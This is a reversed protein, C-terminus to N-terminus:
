RGTARLSPLEAHTLVGYVSGLIALIAASSEAPIPSDLIRPGLALVILVVLLATRELRDSTVPHRRGKLTDGVESEWGRLRFAAYRTASTRGM